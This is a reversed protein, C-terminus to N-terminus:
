AQTRPKKPSPKNGLYDSDDEGEESSSDREKAEDLKLKELWKGGDAGEFLWV